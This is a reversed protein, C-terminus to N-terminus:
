YTWKVPSSASAWLIRRCPSLACAKKDPWRGVVFGLSEATGFEARFPQAYLSSHCQGCVWVQQSFAKMQRHHPFGPNSGQTPFIGQLLSLSGVGTNQSPSNWPDYLGHPQLSDSEVSPSESVESWELGGVPYELATLFIVLTRSPRLGIPDNSETRLM